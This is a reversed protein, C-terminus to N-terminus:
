FVRMLTGVKGVCWVLADLVDRRPIRHDDFWTRFEDCDALHGAFLWLMRGLEAPPEAGAGRVLDLLVNVADVILSGDDRDESQVRYLAAALDCVVAIREPATAVSRIEPTTRELVRGVRSPDAVFAMRGDVLVPRDEGGPDFIMVAFLDPGEADPDIRLGALAVDMPGAPDHAGGDEPRYRRHAEKGAKRSALPRPMRHKWSAPDGPHGPPFYAFDALDLVGHEPCARVTFEVREGDRVYRCRPSGGERLAHHMDYHGRCRYPEYRRLGPSLPAREGIFCGVPSGRFTFEQGIRGTEDGM